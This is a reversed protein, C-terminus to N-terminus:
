PGATHASSTLAPNMKLSPPFLFGTFAATPRCRSAERDLADHGARLGGQGCQPSRHSHPLAKM